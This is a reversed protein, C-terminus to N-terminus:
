LFIGLITYLSLNIKEMDYIRREIFYRIILDFPDTPNLSYGASRLLYELEDSNLCSPTGGGIYITEFNSFPLDNLYEKIRELDWNLKM